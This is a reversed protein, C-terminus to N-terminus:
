DTSLFKRLRPIRAVIKLLSRVYELIKTKIKLKLFLNFAALFISQQVYVDLCVSIQGVLFSIIFLITVMYLYIVYWLLSGESIAYGTNFSTDKYGCEILMQM